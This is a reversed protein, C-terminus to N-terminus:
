TTIGISESQHLLSSSSETSCPSSRCGRVDRRRAVPHAVRASRDRCPAELHPWWRELSRMPEALWPDLVDNLMRVLKGTGDRDLKAGQVTGVSQRSLRSCGRRTVVPRLPGRARRGTAQRARRGRCYWAPDLRARALGEVALSQRSRHRVCEHIAQGCRTLVLIAFGEGIASATHLQLCSASPM